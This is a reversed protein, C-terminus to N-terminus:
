FVFSFSEPYFQHVKGNTYKPASMPYDEPLFLELKFSGGEFPSDEPGTVIVHFYRANSEDPIASIGPVPEQLLRQTEKIIRRPLAAM